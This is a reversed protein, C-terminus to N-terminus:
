ADTVTVNESMQGVELAVNVANAQEAIVKVDELVKAKFGPKEFKITYTSPSLANFNYVGAANTNATLAQGTERNTLTVTTDPVVAGSPDTVTGQISARYQAHASALLLFSSFLLAVARSVLSRVM